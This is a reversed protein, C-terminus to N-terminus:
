SAATKIAKLASSDVLNGGVRQESYLLVQGKVTVDDRILVPRGYRVVVYGRRFDGLWVSLANGTTAAPLNPDVYVPKGFLTPPQSASLDPQWLYSGGTSAKQTM